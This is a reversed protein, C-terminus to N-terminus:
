EELGECQQWGTQGQEEVIQVVLVEAWIQQRHDRQVLRMRPEQEQEEALPVTWQPNQM